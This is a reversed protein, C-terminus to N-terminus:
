GASALIADAIAADHVLQELDDPHEGSVLAAVARRLAAREPSELQSALRTEGHEDAVTIRLLGAPEDVVLERRTTGLATLRLVGGDPVGSLTRAVLSVPTGGASSLSALHGGAATGVADLTLASDALVRAWGITDRLTAPLQAAPAACEAVVAAVPGTATPMRDPALRRRLV